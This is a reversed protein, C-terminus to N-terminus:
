KVLALGFRQSARIVVQSLPVAACVLLLPDIMVLRYRFLGATALSILSYVVCCTLAFAVFVRCDKSRWMVVISIVGLLIPWNRYLLTVAPHRWVLLQGSVFVGWADLLKYSGVILAEHPYRGIFQIAEHYFWSTPKSSLLTGILDPQNYFGRDWAEHWIPYGQEIVVRPSWGWWIAYPGQSSILVPEGTLSCAYGAWLVIPVLFALSWLAGARLFHTLQGRGGGLALVALTPALLLLQGRTLAAYGAILGSALLHMISGSARWRLFCWIASVWLFLSLTESNLYAAQNWWPLHVAGLLGAVLGAEKNWLSTAIQSIIVCSLATLLFQFAILVQFSIGFSWFVITQFLPYGPPQYFAVKPAYELGFNYHHGEVLATAHRFFNAADGDLEEVLWHSAVVGTHQERDVKYALVASGILLSSLLILVTIQRSIWSM